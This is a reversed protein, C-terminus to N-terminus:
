AGATIVCVGCGRTKHHGGHGDIGFVLDGGLLPTTTALLTTGAVGSISRTTRTLFANKKFRAFLGVSNAALATLYSLAILPILIRRPSKRKTPKMYGRVRVSDYHAM